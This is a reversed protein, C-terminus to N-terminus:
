WTIAGCSSFTPKITFHVICLVCTYITTWTSICTCHDHIYLCCKLYSWLFHCREWNSDAYIYFCVFIRQLKIFITLTEVLHELWGWTIKCYQVTLNDASFRLKNGGNWINHTKCSWCLTHIKGSNRLCFRSSISLRSGFCLAAIFVM